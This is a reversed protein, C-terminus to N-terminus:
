GRAPLARTIGHNGGRARRAIEQAGGCFKAAKYLSKKLVAHQDFYCGRRGPGVQHRLVRNQFKTQHHADKFMQAIMTKFEPPQTRKSM